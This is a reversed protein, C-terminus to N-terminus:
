FADLWDAHQAVPIALDQLVVRARMKKVRVSVSLGAIEAMKQQLIESKSVVTTFADDFGVLVNCLRSLHGECCMGVSETMEEKLRKCLEDKHPSTKIMAWLGDLTRKYLCDAEKRCMTLAYWHEVDTMVKRGRGFLVRIEALTNQEPPVTVALLKDTQGNTNDTVVKRHVNQTDEVFRKLDPVAPENVAVEARANQARAVGDMFTRFLRHQHVRTIVGREVADSLHDWVAGIDADPHELAYMRLHPHWVGYAREQQARLNQKEARKALVGAHYACVGDTAKKGCVAGSGKVCLCTSGPAATGSTAAGGGLTNIIQEM